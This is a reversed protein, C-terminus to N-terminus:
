YRRSAIEECREELVNMVQETSQIKHSTDLLSLKGILLKKQWIENRKWEIINATVCLNNIGHNFILNECLLLRIYGHDLASAYDPNWSPHPVMM